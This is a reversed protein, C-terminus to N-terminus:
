PELARIRLLLNPDPCLALWQAKESPRCVGPFDGQRGDLDRMIQFHLHPPWGLNEDPQGLWGILEGTAVQTGSRTKGLTQRSLHGYLTYFRHGGEDHEFILTPGYDGFRANDATSHVRGGLVAHVPTGAACWLDIGLHLTRPETEATFLRSMRYLGRDEGYGGAAYDAAAKACQQEIWKSFSSTDAPDIDQLESNSDDLRMRLCRRANLDFGLAPATVLSKLIGEFSTM